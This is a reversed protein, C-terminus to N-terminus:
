TSARLYRGCVTKGVQDTLVGHHPGQLVGELGVADRLGEHQGANAARALRRRRADDGLPQVADPRVAPPGVVSGQPAALVALGDGLAAMDVHHLHVRGGVGPHSMRSIM